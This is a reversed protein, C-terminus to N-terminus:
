KKTRNHLKIYTQKMKWNRQQNWNKNIFRLLKKENKIKDNIIRATKYDDKLEDEPNSLSYNYKSLNVYGIISNQNNSFDSMFTRGGFPSGTFFQNQNQAHGDFGLSM